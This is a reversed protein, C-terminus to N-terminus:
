VLARAGPALTARGAAQEAERGRPRAEVAAALVYRRAFQYAQASDRFAAVDIQSAFGGGRAAIGCFAADGRPDPTTLVVDRLVPDNLVQGTDEITGARKLFDLARGLGPTTEGLLRWWVAEAHDHTIAANVAPDRVTTLDTAAFAYRRAAARWRTDALRAALASPSSPDSLLAKAALGRNGTREGLGYATLLVKLAAPHGLFEAPTRARALAQAYRALDRRVDPRQATLAIHRTADRRAADLAALPDPPAHDADTGRHLAALLSDGRAGVGYLMPLYSPTNITGAGRM